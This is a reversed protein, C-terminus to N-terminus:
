NGQLGIILREVAGGTGHERTDLLRQRREYQAYVAEARRKTEGRARVCSPDNTLKVNAIAREAAAVMQRAIAGHMEEHRMVGKMFIGWRQRLAKPVGGEIRPYTYTLTLRADSKKVSCGKNEAAYRIDWSVLYRTQAIAHTLLGHKPGHRDMQALLAAGTTGRVPYSAQKVSVTVRASAAGGLAALAVAVIAAFAVGRM